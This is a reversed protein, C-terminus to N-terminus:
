FATKLQFATKPHVADVVEEGRRPGDGALWVGSGVGSPTGEWIVRIDRGRITSIKPFVVRHPPAAPIRALDSYM